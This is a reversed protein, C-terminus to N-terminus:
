REDSLGLKHFIFTMQDLSQCDIHVRGTESQEHWKISMALGLETAARKEIARIDASKKTTKSRKASLMASSALRKVLTEAQRASLGKEVITKALFEAQPHGVLPRVQGMKLAGDRLM